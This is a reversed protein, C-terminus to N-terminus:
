FWRELLFFPEDNSPDNQKPTPKQPTPTKPNSHVGFPLPHKTTQLTQCGTLATLVSIVVVM